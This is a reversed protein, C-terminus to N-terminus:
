NKAWERGSAGLHGWCWRKVGVKGRCRGSGPGVGGRFACLGHWGAACGFPLWRVRRHSSLGPGLLAGAFVEIGQPQSPRLCRGLTPVAQHHTDPSWTSPHGFLFDVDPRSSRRLSLGPSTNTQKRPHHDKPSDDEDKWSSCRVFSLLFDLRLLLLAWHVSLQLSLFMKCVRIRETAAQLNKRKGRWGPSLICSLVPWSQSHGFWAGLLYALVPGQIYSCWKFGFPVGCSESSGCIKSM